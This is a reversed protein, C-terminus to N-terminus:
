SDMLVDTVTRDAATTDVVAPAFSGFVIVTPETLGARGDNSYDVM